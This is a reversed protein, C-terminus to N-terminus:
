TDGIYLLITQKDKKSFLEGLQEILPGTLNMNLNSQQNAQANAM